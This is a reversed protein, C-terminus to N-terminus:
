ALVNNILLKLPVTTLRSTERLLFLRKFDSRCDQKHMKEVQFTYFIAQNKTLNLVFNQRM